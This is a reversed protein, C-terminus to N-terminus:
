TRAKNSKRAKHKEFLEKGQSHKERRELSTKGEKRPINPTRFLHFITSKKTTTRANGLSVLFSSRFDSALATPDSTERFLIIQDEYVQTRQAAIQITHNTKTPTAVREVHVASHGALTTRTLQFSRYAISGM